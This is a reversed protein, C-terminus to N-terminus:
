PNGGADGGAAEGGGGLSWPSLAMPQGGKPTAALIPEVGGLLTIATVAGTETGETSVIMVADGKQFDTLAAPPMRNVIQQFDGAGGGRRGAAGAAGAQGGAAGPAPPKGTSPATNAGAGQGASQGSGQGSNQAQGSGQGPTGTGGAPPTGKLRAAIGQAMMLPLKRVESDATVKVTLPQKTALDMVTITNAAADISSITGAINRFSGAVIEEAAISTGDASRSGRARLQDGPKIQKITVRKADDFKVSDPAYRRLVTDKSVQVILPKPGGLSAVSITITGAAIDASTVLGGVGRKQWDDRDKQQKAEIDMKKMAVISSAAFSKTDGSAKGVILIRDGVQLDQLTIPTANKLDKEGPEIRLIRANDQVAVALSAGAQTTLTISNGAISQITGLTRSAPGPTAPQQTQQVPAGEAQLHAFVGVAATAAVALIALRRLRRMPLISSFM